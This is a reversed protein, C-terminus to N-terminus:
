PFTTSRDLTAYPGIYRILTILSTAVTRGRRDLHVFSLTNHQMFVLGMGLDQLFGTAAISAPGVDLSWHAMEWLSYSIILMGTAIVFRLDIKGAFQSSIFMTILVGAGRPALVMGTDIVSYGYLHQLMPPLLALPALTIAGILLM